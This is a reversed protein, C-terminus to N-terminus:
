GTFIFFVCVVKTLIELVCTVVEWEPFSVYTVYFMTFSSESNLRYLSCLMFLRSLIELVGTMVEWRLVTFSKKNDMKHLSFLVFFKRIPM